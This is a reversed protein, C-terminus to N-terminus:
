GARRRVLFGLTGLDRVVAVLSRFDFPRTVYGQVPLREARLIHEAVPSDVLLIVPVDATLPDARLLRLLHRGDRGPLNLDLLVVDPLDAYGPPDPTRLYSLAADATRAIRPENTVAHADFSERTIVDEGPDDHVILFTVPSDADTM